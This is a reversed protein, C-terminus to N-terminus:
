QAALPSDDACQDSLALGAASGHEGLVTLRYRVWTRHQPRAKIDSLKIM